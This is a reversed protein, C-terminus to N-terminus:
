ETSVEEVVEATETSSDETADKVASSQEPTLVSLTETRMEAKLAKKEAKIEALQNEIVQSQEEYDASNPDLGAHQDKLAMKADHLADFEPQYKDKITQIDAKQADDLQVKDLVKEAKSKMEKMSKGAHDDALIPATLALSITTLAALSLHKINM